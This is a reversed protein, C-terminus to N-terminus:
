SRAAATSLELRSVGSPGALVWWEFCKQAHMLLHQWVHEKQQESKSRQQQILQDVRDFIIGSMPMGGLRTEEVRWIEVVKLECELEIRSVLHKYDNEFLLRLEDFLANTAAEMSYCTTHFRPSFDCVALAYIAAHM